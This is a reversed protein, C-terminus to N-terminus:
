PHRGPGNLSRLDLLKVIRVILGSSLHKTELDPIAGHVAELLEKFTAHDECHSLSSVASEQLGLQMADHREWDAKSESTGRGRTLRGLNYLAGM